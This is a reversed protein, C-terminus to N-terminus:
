CFDTILFGLLAALIVLLYYMKKKRFKVVVCSLLYYYFFILLSSIFYYDQYPIDSLIKIGYQYKFVAAPFFILYDYIISILRRECIVEPGFFFMMSLLFWIFSNIVIFRNPKLFLSM